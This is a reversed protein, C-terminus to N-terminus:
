RYENDKRREEDVKRMIDIEREKEKEEIFLDIIDFLKFMGWIILIFVIIKIIM